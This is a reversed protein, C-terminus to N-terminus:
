YPVWCRSTGLTTKTLRRSLTTPSASSKLAPWSQLQLAVSRQAIVSRAVATASSSTVTAFVITTTPGRPTSASRLRSEAEIANIEMPEPTSVQADPTLAQAYSSTVTYDERLALAFAAELTAPEARTLCYRTMGERIGFIFVHVLSAVDIPKTAICSVLHRAKHAYDRMPMKEQRLAFFAARMRAEDQPPDFALRLESQLSELTPFAERDVVLKGLTREKTKGSLRSLLFNVKASPAEIMRSAIAIDVERFWWHLPLREQGVGSYTSTEMKVADNRSSHSPTPVRRKAEPLERDM